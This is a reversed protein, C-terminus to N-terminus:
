LWWCDKSFYSTVPGPPNILEIFLTVLGPSVLPIWSPNLMHVRLLCISKTGRVCVVCSKIEKGSDSLRRFFLAHSRDSHYCLWGLSQYTAKRVARFPKLKRHRFEWCAGWILLRTKPNWKSIKTASVAKHMIGRTLCETCIRRTRTRVLYSLETCPCSFYFSLGTSVRIM